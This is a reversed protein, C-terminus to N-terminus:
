HVNVLCVTKGGTGDTTEAVVETNGVSIGTILGTQTVTAISDNSSYWHLVPAKSKAGTVEYTLQESEGVALSVDYNSLTISAYFFTDGCSAFALLVATSLLACLAKKM